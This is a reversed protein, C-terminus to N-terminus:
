GGIILKQAQSILQILQDPLYLGGVSIMVLMVVLMVEGSVNGAVSPETSGEKGFFMKFLVLAIAVFVVALLLVLFAGLFLHGGDFVAAIISFESAFISFPPVGAIAFLGLFFVTGVLPLAQLLGKVNAIKKSHYHLYIDGSAFFLMSKTLSHNVMHFFAGWIAAPSFIGIAVTIIGMHEISSYALMRKYDKQTLMSIASILMTLVGIAILLHGTYSSSGLNKNVIAATRIIGYMATNLLVGSLLASVPSPAQSHADPLWTHMPALGAKTGFGVLTFIFALKLISSRLDAANAFLDPWSLLHSGNLVEVSSLHLFIIGLLALSIGVSCIIVYKWAAELDKKANYFGVLFVSTLTTAEIGIWMIGMSRATLALMMSFNFAAMLLYYLKIQSVELKGTKVETELYGVSYISAIWGIILVIDLIMASLADLYFFGASYIVGDRLVSRTLFFAILMFLTASSISIVHLLTKQNLFIYFLIALLAVMFLALGM